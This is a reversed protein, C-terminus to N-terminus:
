NNQHLKFTNNPTGLSGVNQPIVVGSDGSM